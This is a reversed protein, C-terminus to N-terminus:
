TRDSCTPEEDTGLKLAIYARALKNAIGISWNPSIEIHKYNLSAWFEDTWCGTECLHKYARLHLGNSIDFFEVIDM